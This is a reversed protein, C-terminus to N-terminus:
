PFVVPHEPLVRGDDNKVLHLSHVNCVLADSVLCCIIFEVGQQLYTLGVDSPSEM